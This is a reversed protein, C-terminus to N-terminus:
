NVQPRQGLPKASPFGLLTQRALAWGMRRIEGGLERLLLFRRLSGHRQQNPETRERVPAPDVGLHSPGRELKEVIDFRRIGRAAPVSQNQALWGALEGSVFIHTRM